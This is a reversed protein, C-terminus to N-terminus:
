LSITCSASEMSATSLNHLSKTFHSMFITEHLNDIEEVINELIVRLLKDDKIIAKDAMIGFNMNGGYSLASVGIGTTGRHPVWFVISGVRQGLIQIERPGPINSFVITSHSELIPRLLLEPLIASVWKMVWFNILYDPEGRLKYSSKAVDFLRELITLNRKKSVINKAEDETSGSICLPLLGVSFGNELILSNTPVSMRSPLVVTLSKPASEGVQEFYKYLSSSLAALIVDGFRTGTANKIQQIKTLLSTGNIDKSSESEIWSSIIKEGSLKPVHLASNDMSRLAQHVICSPMKVLVVVVTSIKCFNSSVIEVFHTTSNKVKSLAISFLAEIENFSFFKGLNTLLNSKLNKKLQSCITLSFPMSAGLLYENNRLMFENSFDPFLVNKLDNMEDKNNPVSKEPKAKRLKNEFTIQVTKSDAIKSLLLRFLAFGDGLAHHVRFIIPIRAVHGRDDIKGHFILGEEMNKLRDFEANTDVNRGLLIEWSGQDGQPLPLTCLKSLIRDMRDNDCKGETLDDDIITDLWKVHEVIDVTNCKEWYFYGYKKKRLCSLKDLESEGSTLLRQESLRRLKVMLDLDNTYVKSELTASINIISKCASSELAWVCDTGDLLGRFKDGLQIRLVLNIMCRYVYLITLCLFVMPLIIFFSLLNLILHFMAKFRIYEMQLPAEFLDEKIVTTMLNSICATTLLGTVIGLEAPNETILEQEYDTKNGSMIDPRRLINDLTFDFADRFRWEM